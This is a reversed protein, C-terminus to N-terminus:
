LALVRRIDGFDQLFDLVRPPRHVVSVGGVWGIELGEGVVVADVVVVEVGSWGVHHRTPQVCSAM